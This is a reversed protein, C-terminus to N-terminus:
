SPFGLSHFDKIKLAQKRVSASNAQISDLFKVRKAETWQLRLTIEQARALSLHKKGQFLLKLFGPSLGLAQAFSRESYRGNDDKRRVYEAMLFDTSNTM